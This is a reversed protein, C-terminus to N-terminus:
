LETCSGEFPNLVSLLELIVILKFIYYSSFYFKVHHNGGHLLYESLVNSFAKFNLVAFYVSFAIFVTKIVIDKSNIRNSVGKDFFTDRKAHNRFYSCKDTKHNQSYFNLFTDYILWNLNSFLSFFVRLFQSAMPESNRLYKSFAIQITKRFRESIFPPFYLQYCGKWLEACCRNQKGRSRRGKGKDWHSSISSLTLFQHSALRGRKNKGM